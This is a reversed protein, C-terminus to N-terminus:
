ANEAANAREIALQYLIPDLPTLIGVKGRVVYRKEPADVLRLEDGVAVGGDLDAEPRLLGEMSTDEDFGEVAPASTSDANYLWMSAEGVANTDGDYARDGSTRYVTFTRENNKVRTRAFQANVSM